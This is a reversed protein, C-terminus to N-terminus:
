EAEEITTRVDDGVLQVWCEQSRSDDYEFVRGEDDLAFLGGPGATIQVFTIEDSPEDVEPENSPSEGAKTKPM